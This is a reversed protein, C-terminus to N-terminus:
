GDGRGLRVSALAEYRAPGRGLWSRFLTVKSAWFRASDPAPVEWRSVQAGRGLRAVTAHGLFPRAQPEYVDADSLAMSLKAQVSALRGDENDLSVAVLRPRRRPLWLVEGFCLGVSRRGAVVQCASAIRGIEPVPFSGLFCLTVHMAEPEVLRLGDISQLRERGLCALSRRAASPLELAVFLRASEVSV